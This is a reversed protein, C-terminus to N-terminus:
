HESWINKPLVCHAPNFLLQKRVAEDFDIERRLQTREELSANIMGLIGLPKADTKM